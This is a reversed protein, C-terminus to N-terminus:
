EWDCFIKALHYLFYIFFMFFSEDQHIFSEFLSHNWFDSIINQAQVNLIM